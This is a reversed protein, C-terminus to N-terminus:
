TNYNAQKKIPTRYRSERNAQRAIWNTNAISATVRLNADSPIVACGPVATGTDPIEHQARHFTRCGVGESGVKDIRHTTSTVSM